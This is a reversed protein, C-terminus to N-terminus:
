KLIRGDSISWNARSEQIDNLLQLASAPEWSYSRQYHAIRLNEKILEGVSMAAVGEKQIAM